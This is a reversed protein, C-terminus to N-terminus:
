NPSYHVMQPMTSNKESLPLQGKGNGFSLINVAIRKHNPALHAYRQTMKIDAHGLLQSITFLDIGKMALHSAFTHRLDHIRCDAIKAAALTKEWDRKLNTTDLIRGVKRNGALASLVVM